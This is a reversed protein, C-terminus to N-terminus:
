KGRELASTIWEGLPHKEDLCLSHSGGPIRILKSSPIKQHIKESASPHIIKDSQGHILTTSITLHKLTETQDFNRIYELGDLLQKKNDSSNEGTWDLSGCRRRFIRLTRDLSTNVGEALTDIDEPSWGQPHFDTKVFSPCPAFLLLSKANLTETLAAELALMSGMSWGIILDWPHNGYHDALREILTANPKFATPELDSTDLVHDEAGEPLNNILPALEHPQISWGGLLLIKDAM